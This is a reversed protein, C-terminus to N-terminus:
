STCGPLWKRCRSCTLRRPRLVHHLCVAASLTRHWARVMATYRRQVVRLRAAALLRWGLTSLMLGRAAATTTTALAVQVVIL